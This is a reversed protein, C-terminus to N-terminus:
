NEPSVKKVLLESEYLSLYVQDPNDTVTKEFIFIQLISVPLFRGGPTKVQQTLQPLSKLM